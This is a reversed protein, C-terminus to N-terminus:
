ESRFRRGILHRDSNLHALRGTVMGIIELSSHFHRFPDGAESVGAGPLPYAALGLM